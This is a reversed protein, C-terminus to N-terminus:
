QWLISIATGQNPSSDVEIKFGYQKVIKAVIHLGIGFGGEYSSMRVYRLFIQDLKDADIGVGSDKVHLGKTNVHLAITGGIKNYKIANSILNDLLRIARNKDMVIQVHDKAEFRVHLRKQEIRHKFYELREQAITAIDLSEDEIALNHNLMLFTLDDYISSITQAAIEIRGLKKREKDDFASTDLMEINGQITQLPTNLEHTTDKIFHDLLSIAERMPAFILRSLLYGLTVLILFLLSGYVLSTKVTKKFWLGDDQTEFVVYFDGLEYSALSVYFHIYGQHLEIAKQPNFHADKLYGDIKMGLVNYFATHYALDIPYPLLVADQSIWQRLKPIYSESQLQMALRHESLMQDKQSKYYLVGLLLLISISMFTYLLIFLRFSRKEAFSIASDNIRSM